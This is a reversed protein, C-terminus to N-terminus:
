KVPELIILSVSNIPMYVDFDLKGDKIPLIKSSDAIQTLKSKQMVTQLQEQSFREPKGMSEWIKHFNGHDEDVKYHKMKANSFPINRIKIRVNRNMNGKYETDSYNWIMAQVSGDKSSTTTWGELELMDPRSFGTAIREDGMMKLMLMANYVAKKIGHVNMLGFIGPYEKSSVPGLEEFIDSVAWFSFTDVQGEADKIQHCLFPAAQIKDYDFLGWDDYNFVGWETIHLEKISPIGAFDFRNKTERLGYYFYKSVPYDMDKDRDYYVGKDWPYGHTSIFDIPVNNKKCYEILDDVWEGLGSSAPGGVKLEPDVAKVAEVTAKYLKLYDEKTGGWFAGYNAENWVEFRWKKIEELGYREKWHKVCNYILDGWKKYDAPPSVNGKYYFVTKNGSALASPMFGFEVFPRMGISRIFDYIKDATTFDYVIRGGSNKCIGVQDDLIGHFRMFGFGLDKSITKMQEQFDERLYIAAHCSGASKEWYHPFKGLKKKLDAYVVAKETSTIRDEPYLNLAPISSQEKNSKGSWSLRFFPKKATDVRSYKIKLPHKVSTSLYSSASYSNLQASNVTVSSKKLPLNVGNLLLEINGDSVINLEYVESKLSEIKGSFILSFPQKDPAGAASIDTTSKAYLPENFGADEFYTATLGDESIKPFLCNDPVIEESLQQGCSWFLKIMASGSIEQYELYVPYNKGKELHIKGTSDVAGKNWRNIIITDGIRLRVGDDSTIRFSHLGTFKPAIRGQWRISFNDQPISGDPSLTKWDFDIKKDIKKFRFDKFNKSSFYEGILGNVLCTGYKDLEAYANMCSVTFIVSLAILPRRISNM